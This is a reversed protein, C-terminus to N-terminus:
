AFATGNGLRGPTRAGPRRGNKPEVSGCGLGHPSARAPPRSSDPGVARESTMSSPKPALLSSPRIAPRQVSLTRQRLRAIPGNLQALGREVALRLVAARPMQLAEATGRGARVITKRTLRITVTQDFRQM